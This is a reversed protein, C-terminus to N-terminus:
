DPLGSAAAYGKQEAAKALRDDFTAVATANTADAALLVCCDPLRLGTAIRLQALAEAANPGLRAEEVEMDALAELLERARGSRTAGVLVEALTITSVALDDARELLGVAHETHADGAGFYAILVSADLITLGAM